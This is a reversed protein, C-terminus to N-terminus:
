WLINARSSGMRAATSSMARIAQPGEEWSISAVVSALIAVATAPMAEAVGCGVAVGTVIGEVGVGTVNGVGRGIGVGSGVAVGTM